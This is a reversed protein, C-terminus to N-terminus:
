SVHKSHTTSASASDVAKHAACRLMLACSVLLAISGIAVAVVIWLLNNSNKGSELPPESGGQPALCGMSCQPTVSDGHVLPVGAASWQNIGLVDYVTTFGLTELVTAADKSRRGSRCYLAIPCTMCNSLLTANQTVALSEMLTANALHGADWEDSRRVDVLAQFFGDALKERAEVVDLTIYGESLAVCFCFIVSKQVRQM